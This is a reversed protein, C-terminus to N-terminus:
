LVFYLLNHIVFMVYHSHTSTSVACLFPESIKITILKYNRSNESYNYKLTYSPFYAEYIRLVKIHGQDQM